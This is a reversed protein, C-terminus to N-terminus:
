KLLSRASFLSVFCLKFLWLQGPSAALSQSDTTLSQLVCLSACKEGYSSVRWVWSQSVSSLKNPHVQGVPFFLMLM